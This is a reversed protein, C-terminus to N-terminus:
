RQHAMKYPSNKNLNIIPSPIHVPHHIEIKTLNQIMYIIRMGIMDKSQNSFGSIQHV